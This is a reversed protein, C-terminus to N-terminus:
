VGDPRQSVEVDHLAPSWLVRGDAGHQEAVAEDEGDPECQERQGDRDDGRHGPQQVEELAVILPRQRWKVLRRRSSTANPSTAASTTYRPAFHFSLPSRPPCFGASGNRM